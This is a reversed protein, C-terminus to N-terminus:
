FAETVHAKIMYEQAKVVWVFIVTFVDHSFSPFDVSTVLM